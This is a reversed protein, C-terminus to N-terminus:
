MDFLVIDTKFVNDVCEMTCIGNHNHVVELINKIGIGHNSPNKKDTIPVNDIFKINKKTYNKVEVILQSVKYTIGFYIERHKSDNDICGEIANDFLNGFLMCCEVGTLNLEEPIPMINCKVVIDKNRAEIIKANIIADMSLNGTDIIKEVSSNYLGMEKIYNDADEYHREDLLAQLIKIHNGFDHRISMAKDVDKSQSEISKKQEDIQYTLMSNKLRLEFMDILKDYIYFVIVDSYIIGSMALGLALTADPSTSEFFFVMSILFVINIIPITMLMLWYSSYGVQKKGFFLCILKTLLLLLIKSIVSGIMNYQTEMMLDIPKASTFLMIIACTIYELACGAGFYAVSIIVKNRKYGIYFLSCILCVAVFVLINLVLGLNMMGSTFLIIFFVAYKLYPYRKSFESETMFSNFIMFLSVAEACLVGINIIIQM